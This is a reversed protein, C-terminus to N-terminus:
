TIEHLKGTEVDYVFGRITRTLTLYPSDALRKVSRRVSEELDTFTYLEFDPRAGAKAHIHEKLTPDDMAMMGCRTHQIVMVERTGLAAQSVALSRIVDGTVVGGANRIVHAHGEELGLIAGLELRADMCAVVAVEHHPEPPLAGKDFDAAYAANHTLYREIASM